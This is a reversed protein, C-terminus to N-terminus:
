RAIPYELYFTVEDGIVDIFHSSIGSKKTQFKCIRVGYIM